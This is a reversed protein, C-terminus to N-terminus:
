EYYVDAREFAYRILREEQESYSLGANEMLKPYMSIPTHGPLTNIENLVPLDGECLFFDVRALGSCGMAKYAKIATQRIKEIAEDSIRAPIITKSAANNYKAEFDYLAENASCIEGVTSAFPDNNGMVACECEIGFIGQEVVVKKDHAFALKIGTKLQELNEARSVGVSSGCNAPKVFMPYKLKKEMQACKEDLIDLEHNLIPVYPATRIGHSDLVIHTLEKDMCNASSLLDCGVFPIQALEFLGQVTGDEGNKGHLVPFICDVKINQYGGEKDLVIFGKHVPDPSLICRVNDPHETWKGSKIDESVGSYKYWSGKKTIGICLVDFKDKPISEIVHAASVLSVDHENSKGGFIVAVKLKAM